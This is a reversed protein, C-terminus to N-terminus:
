NLKTGRIENSIFHLADQFSDYKSKDNGDKCKTYKIALSESWAHHFPM